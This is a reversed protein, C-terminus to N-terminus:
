CRWCRCWQRTRTRLPCAVPRSPGGRRWCWRPHPVDADLVLRLAAVDPYADVPNGAGQVLLGLGLGDGGLVPWTAHDPGPPSSAVPRWDVRFLSDTVAATSASDLQGATVPRLVMSGMVAVPQGTADALHVALSDHGTWTVRARVASAGGALLSVGSWAFPLRLGGAPGATGFANAHLAADLLAPHIGYRSAEERATGHAEVADVDSPSLGASALAQRIVRQQSPGNPATLGNCTVWTPRPQASRWRGTWPRGAGLVAGLAAAKVPHGRATATGHLWEADTLPPADLPRRPSGQRLATVVAPSELSAVPAALATM